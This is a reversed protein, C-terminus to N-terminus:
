SDTGPFLSRVALGPPGGLWDDLTHLGYGEISFEPLLVQEIGTDQQELCQKLFRIWEQKMCDALMGEGRLHVVRNAAQVIKECGSCTTGVAFIIWDYYAERQLLELLALIDKETFEHLIMPNAAPFICRVDQIKGSYADLSIDKKKRLDLILDGLDRDLNLSLLQEMGSCETLNLYLVQQNGALYRASLLSFALLEVATGDSTMVMMQQRRELPSGAALLRLQPFQATMKRFLNECSQYRCLHCPEDSEEEALVLYNQRSSREKFREEYHKPIIWFGKEWSIAEQKYDETDVIGIVAQRGLRQKLYLALRQMYNKEFGSLLIGENQM